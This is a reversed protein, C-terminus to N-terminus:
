SESKTALYVYFWDDLEREHRPGGGGKDNNRYNVNLQDDFEGCEKLMGILGAEAFGVADRGRVHLVIFAHTPTWKDPSSQYLEWRSGLTRAMGVKFECAHRALVWRSAAFAVSLQTGATANRKTDFLPRLDIIGHAWEWWRQCKLLPVRYQRWDQTYDSTPDVVSDDPADRQQRQVLHYPEYKPRTTAAGATPRAATPSQREAIDSPRDVVSGQPPLRPASSRIAHRHMATLNRHMEAVRTEGVVGNMNAPLVIRDGRVGMASESSRSLPVPPPLAAAPAPQPPALTTAMAADGADDDSDLFGEITKHVQQSFAM